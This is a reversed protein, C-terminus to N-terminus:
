KEESTKEKLVKEQSLEEIYNDFFIDACKIVKDPLQKATDNNQIYDITGGVGYILYAEKTTPIFILVIASLVTIILLFIPLKKSIKIKLDDQNFYLVTFVVAAMVSLICLIALFFCIGDLRTIWYIESM